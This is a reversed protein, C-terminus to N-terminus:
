SKCIPGQVKTLWLKKVTVGFEIFGVAFEEDHNSSDLLMMNTIKGFEFKFEFCITMDGLGYSRNIHNKKCRTVTAM